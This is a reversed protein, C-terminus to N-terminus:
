HTLDGWNGDHRRKPYTIKLKALDRYASARSRGALKAAATVSYDCTSLLNMWYNVKFQKVAKNPQSRLDERYKRWIVRVAEQHQSRIGILYNKKFEKVTERYTM